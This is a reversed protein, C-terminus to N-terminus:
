LSAGQPSQAEVSTNDTQSQRGDALGKIAIVAAVAMAGAMGYFVYQMAQAYDLQVAHFIKDANQGAHHAFGSSQSGGSSQSLSAAIADARGKPIGFGALSEQIHARTQTVLITGLVALGISAGYNRVTQTIGSVEGYSGPEARNVADTSAPGLMFGIGAGAMVMYWFQANESLDTLEGAWLYFGVAALICGLVVTGKAGEKDMRRGAMQTAPAFGLFFTLLYMGANSASKGLSIQAYMSAFFFVPVFAVMAFFLILNEVAFARDKFIRLQVLPEHTRIEIGVFVFLLAVGGVISGLVVPNTWGWAGAQQLGFVSGGMGLAVLLLGTTDIRAPRREQPPNSIKILVLAGIAIPVNIWFISRWTWETLYGGAIPGVATMAGAIGFFTALAKGRKSLDYSSVVIALAAPLMLAAGLGQLARFTIMWPEAISGVPVAGNLASAGAFIVTGVTVMTRHGFIDSLRGGFAFTAALVLLYANVVWQIGGPSLHLERQIQPIALSVITQDIFTMSVALIMAALILKQRPHAQEDTGGHSPPASKSSTAVM